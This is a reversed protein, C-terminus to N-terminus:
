RQSFDFLWKLLKQMEPSFSALQLSARHSFKHRESALPGGELVTVYNPSFEWSERGRLLSLPSYFLFRINQSKTSNDFTNIDTNSSDLFQYSCPVPYPATSFLSMSTCWLVIGCVYVPYLDLVVAKTLVLAGATCSFSM